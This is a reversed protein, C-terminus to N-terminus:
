NHLTGAVETVLTRAQEDSCDFTKCVSEVIEEHPYELMLSLRVLSEPTRLRKHIASM